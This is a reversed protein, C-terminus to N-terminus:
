GKFSNILAFGYLAVIAAGLLGISTLQRAMVILNPVRTTVWSM